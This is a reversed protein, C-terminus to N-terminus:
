SFFNSVSDDRLFIHSIEMESKIYHNYWGTKRPLCIFTIGRYELMQLKVGNEHKPDGFSFPYFDM